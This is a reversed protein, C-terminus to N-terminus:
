SSERLLEAEENMIYLLDHLEQTQRVGVGSVASEDLPSSAAPLLVVALATAGMAIRVPRTALRITM